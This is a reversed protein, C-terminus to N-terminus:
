NGNSKDDKDLISYGLKKLTETPDLATNVGLLLFSLVVYCAVIACLNM